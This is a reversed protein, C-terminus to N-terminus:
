ASGAIAGAGAASNLLGWGSSGIDLVEFALVVLLVDLVGVMLYQVTLLVVSLRPLRERALAGFGGLATRLVGTPAGGAGGLGHGPRAAGTDVRRVLLGACAWAAAMVAFVAGPGSVALLLAALPGGLVSISETWSSAVNAATLEDPTRALIPLLANQAPRTLTISTAALAALGYVLPVLADALLAAATAAGDRGGPGPLRRAPGTRAPLPGRRGRGPARGAGGPGAPRAGGARDRGGGVEYAFALISVLDGM